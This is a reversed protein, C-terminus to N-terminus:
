RTDEPGYRPVPRVWVHMREMQRTGDENTVLCEDEHDWKHDDGSERLEDEFEADQQALYLVNEEGSLAKVYWAMFVKKAHRNALSVTTYTRVQDGTLREASQFSSVFPISTCTSPPSPQSAGSRGDGFLSETDSTSTSRSSAQSTEMAATDDVIESNVPDTLPQEVNIAPEQESQIGPEKLVAPDEHYPTISKKFDVFWSKHSRVIQWKKALEYDVEAKKVVERTLTAHYGSERLPGIKLEQTVNGNPHNDVTVKYSDVSIDPNLRRYEKTFWGTIADLKAKAKKKDFTICAIHEFDDDAGLGVTKVAVTYQWCIPNGDEDQAIEDLAVEEDSVLEETGTDEDVESSEEVEDAIHSHVPAEQSSRIQQQARRQEMRKIMEEDPRQTGTYATREPAQVEKAAEAFSPVNPKTVSIQKDVSPASQVVQGPIPSALGIPRMCREGEDEESVDSEDDSEAFSSGLDMSDVADITRSTQSDQAYFLALQAKIGATQEDINRQGVGRNTRVSPRKKANTRTEDRHLAQLGNRKSKYKQNSQAKIEAQAKKVEDEIQPIESQIQALYHPNLVEAFRKEAVHEPPESLSHLRRELTSRIDDIRRRQLKGSRNKKLVADIFETIEELWKPISTNTDDVSLLLALKMSVGLISALDRQREKFRDRRQAIEAHSGTLERVKKTLLIDAEQPPFMEDLDQKRAVPTSVPNKLNRQLKELASFIGTSQTKTLTSGDPERSAPIKTQPSATGSENLRRRKPQEETLDIGHFKGPPNRDRKRSGFFQNQKMRNLREERRQQEEQSVPAIDGPNSSILDVTQVDPEINSVHRNQTRYQEAAERSYPNLRTASQKRSSVGSAEGMLNWAVAVDADDSASTEKRQGQVQYSHDSIRSITRQQQMSTSVKMRPLSNQSVKRQEKKQERLAKSNQCGQAEARQKINDLPDASASSVANAPNTSVSQGNEAQRDDKEGFDFPCSKTSRPIGDFNWSRSTNSEAVRCILTEEPSDHDSPPPTLLDLPAAHSGFTMNTHFLKKKPKAIASSATQDFIIAISNASNETASDSASQVALDKHQEDNNVDIMIIDNQNAHRIQKLVHARDDIGRPQVNGTQHEEEKCSAEGGTAPDSPLTSDM